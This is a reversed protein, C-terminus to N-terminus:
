LQGPSTMDTKSLFIQSIVMWKLSLKAM